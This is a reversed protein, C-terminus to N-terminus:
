IDKTKQKKSKLEIEQETLIELGITESRYRKRLIGKELEELKTGIEELEKIKSLM